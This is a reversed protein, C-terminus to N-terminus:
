YLKVYIINYCMVKICVQLSYRNIIVSFCLPGLANKFLKKDM